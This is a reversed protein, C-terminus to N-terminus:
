KIGNDTQWKQIDEKTAKDGTKLNLTSTGLNIRSQKPNATINMVVYENGYVTTDITIQYKDNSSPVFNAGSNAAKQLLSKISNDSAYKDINKNIKEDIESNDTELYFLNYICNGTEKQLLKGRKLNNGDGEHIVVAKSIQINEEWIDKMDREENIVSINDFYTDINFEVSEEFYPNEKTFSITDLGYIINDTIGLFARKERLYMEDNGTKEIIITEIQKNLISVFDTDKYYLDSLSLENGTYLDYIKSYGDYVYQYKGIKYTLMAKVSLYGNKCETQVSIGEKICNQKLIIYKEYENEKGQLNEIAERIFANIKKQMEQDKLGQIAVTIADQGVINYSQPNVTYYFSGLEEQEKGTGVASYKIFNDESTKVNKVPIYGSSAIAEQGEYTLLWEVLEDSMKTATKNNNYLSYIDVKFPYEKSIINKKNAEIGDVKIFKINGNIEYVDSPYKYVMYGIANESNDFTAIQEIIGSNEMPLFEKATNTIEEGEMFKEIFVRAGDSTKNQFVLIEEDTGGVESWNTIEGSYIGKIQEQSLTDVPNNANVIFVIGEYAITEKKIDINKAAAERQEADDFTKAFIVDTKGAILKNYATKTDTHTIGAETMEQSKGFLKVSIGAELPITDVTGDIQPLNTKLLNNLEATRAKEEETPKYYNENVAQNGGDGKKATKETNDATVFFFIALIVSMIVVSILAISIITAKRDENQETGM